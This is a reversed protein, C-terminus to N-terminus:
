NQGMTLVCHVIGEVEQSKHYCNNRNDQFYVVTTIIRYLPLLKTRYRNNCLNSFHFYIKQIFLVNSKLIENSCTTGAIYDQVMKENLSQNKRVVWAQPLEGEMDTPISTVGVDVVMPHDLLLGELESPSVQPVTKTATYSKIFM